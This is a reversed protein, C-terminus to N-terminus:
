GTGVGSRGNRLEPLVDPIDELVPEQRLSLEFGWFNGPPLPAAGDLGRIGGSRFISTEITGGQRSHAKFLETLSAAVADAIGASNAAVGYGLVDVDLIFQAFKILKGTQNPSGM